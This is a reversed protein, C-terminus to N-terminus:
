SKQCWYLTTMMKKFKYNKCESNQKIRRMEKLEDERKLCWHEREECFDEIICISSLTDSIYKELTEKPTERSIYCVHCYYNYMSLTLVHSNFLFM